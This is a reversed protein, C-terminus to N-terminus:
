SPTPRRVPRAGAAPQVRALLRRRDHGNRAPLRALRNAHRDRRPRLQAAADHLHRDVPRQERAAAVLQIRPLRHPPQARLAAAARKGQGAALGARRAIARPDADDDAASQGALESQPGHRRPAHVRLRQGVLQRLPRRHRRRRGADRAHPLRPASRPQRQAPRGARLAVSRLRNRPPDLRRDGARAPRDHHRSHTYPRIDYERWVQGQDNPLTGSGKSVAAGRDLRSEGARACRRKQIPTIENTRQRPGSRGIATPALAPSTAMDIRREGIRGAAKTKLSLRHPSLHRALIDYLPSRHWPRRTRCM